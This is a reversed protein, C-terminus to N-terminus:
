YAQSQISACWPCSQNLVIYSNWDPRNTAQNCNTCAGASARLVPFGTVVCPSWSAECFPCVLNGVYIERGCDCRRTSLRKDLKQDVSLQLLFDRLGEAEQTSVMNTEPLSTIDMPIDTGEFDTTDALAAGGSESDSIADNLDLYRNLFIFAM